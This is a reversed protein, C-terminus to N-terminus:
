PDGEQIEKMPYGKHGTQCGVEQGTQCGVEHGTQGGPHGKPNVRKAGWSTPPQLNCRTSCGSRKRPQYPRSSGVRGPSPLRNQAGSPLNESHKVHRSLLRKGPVGPSTPSPRSPLLLSGPMTIGLGGMDTWDAALMAGPADEVRPAHAAAGHSRKAGLVRAGHRPYGQKGAM